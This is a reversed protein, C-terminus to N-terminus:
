IDAQRSVRQADFFSQDAKQRVVDFCKPLPDAKIMLGRAAKLSDRWNEYKDKCSSWSSIQGMPWEVETAILRCNADGDCRMFRKVCDPAKARAFPRLEEASM